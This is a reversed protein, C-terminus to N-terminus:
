KWTAAWVVFAIIPLLLVVLGWIPRVTGPHRRGLIILRIGAALLVLIAFFPPLVLGAFIGFVIVVPLMLAAPLLAILTLFVWSKFSKAFCVVIPAFLGAVLLVNLIYGIYTQSSGRSNELRRYTFPKAIQKACRAEGHWVSCRYTNDAPAEGGVIQSTKAEQVWLYNKQASRDVLAVYNYGQRCSFNVQGDGILKYHGRADWDMDEFILVKAELEKRFKTVDVQEINAIRTGLRPPDDHKIHAVLIRCGAAAENVIESRGEDNLKEYGQLRMFETLSVYIVIGSISLLFVVGVALAIKRLLKIPIGM